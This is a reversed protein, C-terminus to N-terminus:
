GVDRTLEVMQVDISTGASPKRIMIPLTSFENFHRAHPPVDFGVVVAVCLYDPADLGVDGFSEFISACLAGTVTAAFPGGCLQKVARLSAKDFSVRHHRLQDAPALRLSSQL